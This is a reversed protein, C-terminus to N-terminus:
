DGQKDRSEWKWPDQLNQSLALFGFPFARLKGATGLTMKPSHKWSWNPIQSWFSKKNEELPEAKLNSIQTLLAERHQIQCSFFKPAKWEWQKSIISQWEVWIQKPDGFINGQFHRPQLETATAKKLKTLWIFLVQQMQLARLSFAGALFVWCSPAHKWSPNTAKPFFFIKM